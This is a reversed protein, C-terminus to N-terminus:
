ASSLPASGRRWAASYADPAVGQNRAAYMWFAGSNERVSPGWQNLNVRVSSSASTVFSTELLRGDLVTITAEIAKAKVNEPM